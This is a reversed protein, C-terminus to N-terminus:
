VEWSFLRCMFGVAAFTVAHGLFVILAVVMWWQARKLIEDNLSPICMCFVLSWLISVLSATAMITCAAAAPFLYDTM